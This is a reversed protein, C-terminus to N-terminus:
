CKKEAEAEELTKIETSIHNREAYEKAKEYEDWKFIQTRIGDRYVNWTVCGYKDTIKVLAGGSVSNVLEDPLEIGESAALAMLEDETKCKNAKEKQEDTLSDWVGKLMDTMKKNEM